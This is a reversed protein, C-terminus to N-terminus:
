MSDNLDKYQKLIIDQQRMITEQLESTQQSSIM